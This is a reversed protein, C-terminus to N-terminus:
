SLKLYKNELMTMQQKSSEKDDNYGIIHLIGHVFVRKFEIITDSDFEAAQEFIRQACLYHTGEISQQDEDSYRFSITDTVYDRKLFEKNIRIIEDEDVFVTELLSFSVDEDRCIDEYLNKFDSEPVPLQFGSTNFFQFPDQDSKNSM